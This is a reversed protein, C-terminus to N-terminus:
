QATFITRMWVAVTCIASFQIAHTQNNRPRKKMENHVLFVYYQAAVVM